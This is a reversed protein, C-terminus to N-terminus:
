QKDLWLEDLVGFMFTSLSGQFELRCHQRRTGLPQGVSHLCPARPLEEGPDSSVGDTSLSFSGFWVATAFELVAAFAVVASM